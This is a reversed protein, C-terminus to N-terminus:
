KNSMNSMVFQKISDWRVAHRMGSEDNWSNHLAVLDGKENFIPAGSHGWYTWCNHGYGGLGDTSRNGILKLRGFSLHFIKPEFDTNGDGELDINSPNGICFLSCERKPASKALVATGINMESREDDTVIRLLALDDLENVAVCKVRYISADAFIVYKLRGIRDIVQEEDVDEENEPDFDSAIVHACSLLYGNGIHVGTGGEKQIFHCVSEMTSSIFESSSKWYKPKKPHYVTSSSWFSGNWRCRSTSKGNLFYIFHLSKRIEKSDFQKLLFLLPGFIQERLYQIKESKKLTRKKKWQESVSLFIFPYETDVNNQFATYEDIISSLQASKLDSLFEDSREVACQQISIHLTRASCCDIKPIPVNLKQKKRPPRQVEENCAM